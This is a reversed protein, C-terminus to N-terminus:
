NPKVSYAALRAFRRNSQVARPSSPLSGSISPPRWLKTLMVEQKQQLVAGAPPLCDLVCCVLFHSEGLEVTLDELKSGEFHNDTEFNGGEHDYGAINM